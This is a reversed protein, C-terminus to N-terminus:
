PAAVSAVVLIQQRLLLPYAWFPYRPKNGPYFVLREVRFGHRALLQELTFRDHWLVHTLNPKLAVTPWKANPTTIVLRGGQALHGRINDLFLGQNSVHEIVDGAVVVDFSQGLAITEMNGRVVRSDAAHDLGSRDVGLLSEATDEAGPLDVGTLSGSETTLLDWLCYVDSQGISGIDLVRKGRVLPLIVDERKM